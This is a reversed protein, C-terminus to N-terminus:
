PHEVTCEAPGSHCGGILRGADQHTIDRPPLCSGDLCITLSPNQGPTVCRSGSGRPDTSCHEAQSYAPQIQTTTITTGTTVAIASLLLISFVLIKKM